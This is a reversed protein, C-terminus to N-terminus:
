QGAKTAIMLPIASVSAVLVIALFVLGLGNFVRGNVKDGLYDRDNALV